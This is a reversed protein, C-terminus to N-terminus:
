QLLQLCVNRSANARAKISKHVVENKYENEVRLRDIKIEGWIM